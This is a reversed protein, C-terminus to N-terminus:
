APLGTPWLCKSSHYRCLFGVSLARYPEAQPSSKMRSPDPLRQATTSNCVASASCPLVAIALVIMGHRGAVPAASPLFLFIEAANGTRQDCNGRHHHLRLAAEFLADVMNLHASLMFPLSAIASLGFWLDRRDSIGDRNTFEHSDGRSLLVFLQGILATVAIAILFHGGSEGYILAVLIPLFLISQLWALLLRHHPLHIQLANSDCNDM